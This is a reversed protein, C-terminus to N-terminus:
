ILEEEKAIEVLIKLQSAFDRSVPKDLISSLKKSLQKDGMFLIYETAVEKADQLTFRSVLDQVQSQLDM